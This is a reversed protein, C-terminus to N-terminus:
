MAKQNLRLATEVWSRPPVSYASGRLTTGADDDLIVIQHTKCSAALDSDIFSISDEKGMQGAIRYVCDRQASTSLRRSLNAVSDVWMVAHVGVDPGDRLIGRLSDAMSPPEDGDGGFSYSPEADLDRARHLGHLVVLVSPARSEDDVTRKEVLAALDALVDPARRRRTVSVTDTEMLPAIADELGEDIPTFDVLEVRQAGGLVASLVVSFTIRTALEAVKAVVLVNAGSERRLVIDATGHLSAPAGTRLLVAHGSGPKISALVEAASDQEWRAAAAGEFVVPRRTFGREDALKRMERLRELREDEALFATQFRVNAESAGGAPNLVGEGRRTLFQGANNGEGLVVQADADASPLLLRTPLLQLVHRGLADLGALSQSGLLVHVGFGRGQRIITELLEAAAAGVKDNEAFLVHFEDFVLLIRPLRDGTSERYSRFTTKEGGTSRLKAGRQQMEATIAQLVSLGFERESEVAVCRAHPLGHQAYMKFEVGERFDILYLELEKPSYLTTLGGIYTHLLTSKGSGPRGVLLGGSQSESDFRLVAVDRAGSQGLPAAIGSGADCPWWSASELTSSFVSELQFPGEPDSLGSPAVRLRQADAPVDSRVGDASAAVFLSLAREFTVTVEDAGRGERGVVDVVADVLPQGAGFSGAELPDTEPRFEVTAVPQGAWTLRLMGDVGAVPLQPPLSALNVGHPIEADANCFLFTFVGCRPGNEIVRALQHYTSEDFQSPFDFVFLFRYPEAIEGADVNFSDITDYQGRLYKQIVLEIHATAESLRGHLDEASSWVKSDVLKPDHDALALFPSVSEGLGLPDFFTFRAKGPPVAVLLRLLLARAAGIAAPRTSGNHQMLLGGLSRVDVALPNPASAVAEFAGLDNPLPKTSGIIIPSVSTAGSWGRLSGVELRPWSSPPAAQLVDSLQRRLEAVRRDLRWASEEIEAHRQTSNAAAFPLMGRALAEISAFLRELCETAVAARAVIGGTFVKSNAERCLESLDALAKAGDTVGTGIIEVRGGNVPGFRVDAAPRPAWAAAAGRERAKAGTPSSSTVTDYSARLQARYANLAAIRADDEKVLENHRDLAVKLEARGVVAARNLATTLMELDSATAGAQILAELQLDLLEDGQPRLASRTAGAPILAELHLHRSLVVPDENGNQRVAGGRIEGNFM